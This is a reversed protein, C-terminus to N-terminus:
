QYVNAKKFDGGKVVSLAALDIHKRFAASVQEPTLAAVAAELKADWDVMNRGWRERLQLLGAIGPANLSPDESLAVKREDLWTAKAKAVEDATFGDKLAKAIEEHFAAELKPMLQPAASAQVNFRAGDDKTPATFGSQIAYSLGDKIRIRAFLRSNPSGGFILNAITMAALDPDDDSMKTFLSAYLFGNAKDPTELNKNMAAVSTYPNLPRSFRTPTKWDSFLTTVLKQAAAPDFQGVIVVEGDSAGYFQGYFKQVDDLTLKKFDEIQEDITSVYHTDGRKYQGSMHRNLELPVLAGPESKNAELGAIRQTKLSEFDAAPFSPERLLERILTLSAALSAELTQAMGTAVNIGGTVSIQAKLRDTEDQIQQRSKNKTGRMLLAGTLASIASKGFLSKEDGFRFNVLAFVTGGRTKKPLMVLHLGGPLTVRTLRSEINKPSSDFVEGQQIIEGGKFDKLRVAATPADSIVARDPDKTPIFVGVTRNSSKLYAKAVRTIDAPTIKKIEDRELHMLRWDGGAATESMTLGIRESNTLALEYNKLLRAKARDVEEQTPPESILGEITKVLTQEAEDISQDPKLQAMALFMGPDHRSNM